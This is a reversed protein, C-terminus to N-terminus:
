GEDILLEYKKHLITLGHRFEIYSPLDENNASIHFPSYGLSLFINAMKREAELGQSYYGYNSNHEVDNLHVDNNHLKIKRTGTDHLVIITRDTILNSDLCKYFFSMQADLHHADFFLLDIRPLNLAEPPVDNVDAEILSYNKLNINKLTKNVEHQHQSVAKDITIVMGDDGIAKIFNRASYGHLGGVEVVYKLGMCRILSYLLLAEDDQIPGFVATNSQTLHDLNYYM